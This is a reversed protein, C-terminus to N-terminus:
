EYYTKIYNKAMIEKSFKESYKIIAQKDWERNILLELKKAVAKNNREEISVVAYSEFIDQFADMDKFMACPVGYHFGEVLSLGFGEAVSLLIVGDSAKYYNSMESKEVPGCLVLHKQDAVPLRLVGLQLSKLDGGGCFLVWTNNRVEEPLLVYAEIMQRQNKNESINGVYLLVKADQPIDFKNRINIENSLNDIINFSNCVVTINGCDKAGYSNEIKVKMGTSIVTIRCEGETVRKLFDREYQKGAPDLNVTDSFSNLGHLTVIFKQGCKRCVKMWLETSFDCGHIHVIDYNGEKLLKHLFGTMLWYYVLRIFSGNSMSFNKRLGLLTGLSLCNFLCCLYGIMPRKLFRVGEYEFGIGRTDTALVDVHEMKGVAKAIDMVMYGFGTKNREFEPRGEITVYPTIM